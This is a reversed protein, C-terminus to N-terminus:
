FPLSVRGRGCLSECGPSLIAVVTMMMKVMAKTMRPWIRLAVVVDRGNDM